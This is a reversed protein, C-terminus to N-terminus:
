EVYQPTFPVHVRESLMADLNTAATAARKLCTEELDTGRLLKMAQVYCTLENLIADVNEYFLDPM